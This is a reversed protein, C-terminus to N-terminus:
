VSARTPASCRQTRDSPGARAPGLLKACRAIALEVDNEHPLLQALSARAPALTPHLTVAAALKTTAAEKDGQQRAHQGELFLLEGYARLVWDQLEPALTDLTDPLRMDAFAPSVVRPDMLKEEKLKIENRRTWIMMLIYLCFRMLKKEVPSADANEIMHLMLRGSARQGDILSEVSQVGWKKTLSGDRQWRHYLVEPVHLAPGAALLQMHFPHCRWFGNGAINPFRLGRSLLESRTLSRLTTGKVPGVLFDILRRTDSGEYANGPKIAQLNGFEKLDCHASKADPRERLARILRETYTPEIIDDHFYLFYFETSVRDLLSNANESWGLREKQAVIEIRYDRQAHERCIAETGDDCQDVSILIRIAAYTQQRACRLTREIFKEAQWAPICISVDRDPM